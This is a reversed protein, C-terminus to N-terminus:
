AEFDAMGAAILPFAGQLWDYRALAEAYRARTADSDDGQLAEQATRYEAEAERLAEAYAM